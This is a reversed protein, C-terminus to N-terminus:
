DLQDHTHTLDHLRSISGRLFTGAKVAVSSLSNTSAVIPLIHRKEIGSLGSKFHYVGPNTKPDIGGLDYFRINAAKLRQILSWQLLYSGKLRMGEENTAGLLYVGTDGIASAVIGAVVEGNHECLMIQMRQNPQLQEQIRGFEDVSVSSQFNKRMQMQWYLTCFRKYLELSSGELLVLSNREAANLQNRWKKDLNKRLEELSHSLDLVFTRYIDTKITNGSRLVDFGSHFAKARPTEVFANPLIELHLGRRVAYEECLAEAMLDLVGFDVERGRVQFMPGWRLYAIGLRLGKMAIVRLQAMAIVESDRKLVIHSLNKRGWRVAGYSWTQYINSDEFREMLSSWEKEDVQDVEVRLECKTM